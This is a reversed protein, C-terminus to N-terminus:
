KKKKKKNVEEFGDDNDDDKINSNNNNKNNSLKIDNLENLVDLPLNNNNNNNKKNKYKGNLIDEIEKKEEQKKIKIEKKINSKINSQKNNNNIEEEDDDEEEEDYSEESIYNNTDIKDNVSVPFNCSFEINLNHNKIKNLYETKNNKLEHFLKVIMIAKDIDSEDELSIFFYNDIFTKLIKAISKEQIIINKEKKITSCIKDYVTGLAVNFELEEVIEDEENVLEIVNNYIDTINRDMCMRLATWNKFIDKIGQLFLELQSLHKAMPTNNSNLETNSNLNEM